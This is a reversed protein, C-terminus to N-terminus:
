LPNDFYLLAGCSGSRLTCGSAMPLSISFARLKCALPFVVIIASVILVRAAIFSRSEITSVVRLM